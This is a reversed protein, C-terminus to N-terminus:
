QPPPSVYQMLGPFCINPTSGRPAGHLRRRHVRLGAHMTDRHCSLKTNSYRITPQYSIDIFRKETGSFKSSNISVHMVLDEWEIHQRTFDSWHDTYQDCIKTLTYLILFNKYYSFRTNKELDHLWQMTHLWIAALSADTRCPKSCLMSRIPIVNDIKIWCTMTDNEHVAIFYKVTAENRLVQLIYTNFIWTVNRSHM